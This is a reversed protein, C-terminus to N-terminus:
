VYAPSSPQHPEESAAWEWLLDQKPDGGALDCGPFPFPFPFLVGSIGSRGRLPTLFSAEPLEPGPAVPSQRSVVAEEGSPKRLVPVRVEPAM